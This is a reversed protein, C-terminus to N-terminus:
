NVRAAARALADHWEDYLSWNRPVSYWDSPNYAFVFTGRGRAAQLQPAVLDIEAPRMYYGGQSSGTWTSESYVPLGDDVLKPDPNNPTGGHLVAMGWMLDDPDLGRASAASEQADVWWEVGHYVRPNYSFGKAWSWHSWAGDLYQYQMYPLQTAAARVYTLTAPWNNNFYQALGDLTSGPIAAGWTNKAHPEDILYVGLLVGQSTWYDFDVGANKYRDVCSARWDSVDLRSGGPGSTNGSPLRFSDTTCLQLVAKMGDAQFMALKEDVEHSALQLHVANFQGLDVM